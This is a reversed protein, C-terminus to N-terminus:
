RAYVVEKRLISNKANANMQENELRATARKWM